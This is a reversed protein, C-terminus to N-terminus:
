CAILGRMKRKEASKEIEITPGELDKRAKRLVCMINKDIQKIKARTFNVNM